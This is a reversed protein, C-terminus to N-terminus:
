MELPPPSPPDAHNKRPIVRKWFDIIQIMVQTLSQSLQSVIPAFDPNNSLPLLSCRPPPLIFIDAVRQM